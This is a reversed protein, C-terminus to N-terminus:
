KSGYSMEVLKFYSLQQETTAYELINPNLQSLEM